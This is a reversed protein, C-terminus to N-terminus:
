GEGTGAEEDSVHQRLDDIDGALAALWATEVLWAARPTEPDDRLMRSVEGVAYAADPTDGVGESPVDGNLELNLTELVDIFDQVAADLDARRASGFGTCSAVTPTSTERPHDLGAHIRLRRSTEDSVM